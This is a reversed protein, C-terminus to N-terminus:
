LINIFVHANSFPKISFMKDGDAQATPKISSMVLIKVKSVLIEAIEFHRSKFLRVLFILENKLDSSSSVGASNFSRAFVNSV